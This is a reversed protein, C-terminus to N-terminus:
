PLTINLQTDSPESCKLGVFPRPPGGKPGQECTAFYSGVWTTQGLWMADGHGVEKGSANKVTLKFFSWSAELACSGSGKSDFSFTHSENNGKTVFTTSTENNTCNSGSTSDVAGGGGFISVTMGSGVSLNVSAARLDGLPKTSGSKTGPGPNNFNPAANEAAPASNKAATSPPSSTSSSSGCAAGLLAAVGLLVFAVPGTVFFRRRAGPVPTGTRTHSTSKTPTDATSM